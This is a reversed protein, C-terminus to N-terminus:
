SINYKLILKMLKDQNLILEMLKLEMQIMVLTSMLGFRNKQYLQKVSMPIAKLKIERLLILISTFKNRIEVEM